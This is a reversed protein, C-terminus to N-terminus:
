SPLQRVTIRTWAGVFIRDGSRVPVPQGAPLPVRGDNLRTGNLSGRDVLQYSGDAVQELVAHDVSVGEDEVPASLDIVTPGASRNRRGILVRRGRLPVARAPFTAPFRTGDAKGDDFYARDAEVLAEWRAVTASHPVLRLAAPM